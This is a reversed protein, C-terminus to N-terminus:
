ILSHDRPPPLALHSLPPIVTRRFPPLPPPDMICILVIGAKQTQQLEGNIGNMDVGNEEVWTLYRIRMAQHAYASLNLMPHSRAAPCHGPLDAPLALESSIEPKKM